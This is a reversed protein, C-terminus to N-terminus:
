VGIPNLMNLVKVVNLTPILAIKIEIKIIVLVV